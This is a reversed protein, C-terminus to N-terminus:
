HVSDKAPFFGERAKVQEHCRRAVKQKLLALQSANEIDALVNQKSPKRHSLSVYAVDVKKMVM